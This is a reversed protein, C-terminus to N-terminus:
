TVLSLEPQRTQVNSLLADAEAYKQVYRRSLLENGASSAWQRAIRWVARLLPDTASIRDGVDVPINSAANIPMSHTSMHRQNAPEGTDTVLGGKFSGSSVAPDAEELM